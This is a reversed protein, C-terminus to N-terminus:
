ATQKTPKEHRAAFVSKVEDLTPESEGGPDDGNPDYELIGLLDWPDTGAELALVVFAYFHVIALAIDAADDIDFPCAIPDLPFSEFVIRGDEIKLGKLKFFTNWSSILKRMAREHEPPVTVSTVRITVLGDDALHITCRAYGTGDRVGSRVYTTGNGSVDYYYGHDSFDLNEKLAERKEGFDSNEDSADFIQMFKQTDM